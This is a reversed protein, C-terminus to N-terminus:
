PANDREVLHSDLAKNCKSCRLCRKHWKHGGAVVKEAFYVPGQCRRCQDPGGSSLIGLNAKYGLGPGSSSSQFPLASTSSDPTLAEISSDVSPSPSEPRLDTYSTVKLPSSPRPFRKPPSPPRHLGLTQRPSTPITESVPISTFAEAVSNKQNGVDEDEQDQLRSREYVAMPSEISTRGSSLKGPSDSLGRLSTEAEQSVVGASPSEPFKTSNSYSSRIGNRAPSSFPYRNLLNDNYEGTM